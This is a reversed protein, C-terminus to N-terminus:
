NRFDQNNTRIKKACQDCVKVKVVEFRGIIEDVVTTADRKNCESCIKKNKVM